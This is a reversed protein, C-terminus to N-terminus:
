HLKWARAFKDSYPEEEKELDELLFEKLTDRIRLPNHENLPIRLLPKVTSKTEVFLSKVEPPDYIIYFSELEGYDYFRNGIVLGLETIKFPVQTPKQHSQLFLIIAFLIIILAFLFNGSFIGYIVLASGIIIMLLYWKTGREYQEYEKIEWEHLDKGLM